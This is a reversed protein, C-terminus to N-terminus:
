FFDTKEVLIFHWKKLYICIKVSLQSLIHNKAWKGKLNELNKKELSTTCDIQFSIINLNLRLTSFQARSLTASMKLNLRAVFPDLDIGTCNYM